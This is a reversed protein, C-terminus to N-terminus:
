KRHKSVKDPTKMQKAMAKKYSKNKKCVKEKLKPLSFSVEEVKEPKMCMNGDGNENIGNINAETDESSKLFKNLKEFDDFQEEDPQKELIKERLDKINGDKLFHIVIRAISKVAGSSIKVSFNLFNKWVEELSTDIETEYNSLAPKLYSNYLFKSGNFQPCLLWIFTLLILENYFPLWIRIIVNTLDFLKMFLTFMIWYTLWRQTEKANNTKLAKHSWYVPLAIGYFIIIIKLMIRPIM